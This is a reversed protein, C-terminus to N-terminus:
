TPQNGEAVVYEKQRHQGRGPTVKLNGELHKVQVAVAVHVGFLKLVHRMQHAVLRAHPGPVPVVLGRRQFVPADVGAEDGVKESRVPLANQRHVFEQLKLAMQLRLNELQFKVALRHVDHRPPTVVMCSSLKTLAAIPHGGKAARTPLAFM